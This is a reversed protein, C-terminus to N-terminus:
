YTKKLEYSIEGNDDVDMVIYTRQHDAQRPYTLSGPNVFTVGEEEHIVPVHLHGFMVIDADNERALYYLPSIDSYIRYRHGHLLIVKKGAINFSEIRSLSASYDNNGSVMHLECNVRSRLMGEAGELDGCHVVMDYPKEEELIRWMAENRGHSDSMILIKM